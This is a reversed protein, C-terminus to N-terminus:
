VDDVFQAEGTFATKSPNVLKSRQEKAKVAFVGVKETRMVQSKSENIQTM